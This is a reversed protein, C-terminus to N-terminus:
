IIASARQSLTLLQSGQLKFDFYAIVTAFCGLFHTNLRSLPMKKM